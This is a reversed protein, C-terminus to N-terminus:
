VFGKLNDNTQARAMDHHGHVVSYIDGRSIGMDKLQYDSLSSLERIAQKADHYQKARKAMNSVSALLENIPSQLYNSLTLTLHTM